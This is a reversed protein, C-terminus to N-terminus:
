LDLLQMVTLALKVEREEPLVASLLVSPRGDSSPFGPFVAAMVKGLRVETREYYFATLGLAKVGDKTLVNSPPKTRTLTGGFYSLKAQPVGKPFKEQFFESAVLLVQQRIKDIDEQDLLPRAAGHAYDCGLNRAVTNALQGAAAAPDLSGM